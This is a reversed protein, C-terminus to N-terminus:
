SLSLQVPVASAKFAATAMRSPPSVPHGNSVVVALEVTVVDPVVVTVVVAPTSVVVVVVVVAVLVSCTVPLIPQMVLKPICNRAELFTAAQSM